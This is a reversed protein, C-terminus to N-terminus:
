ILHKLFARKNQLLCVPYRFNHPNLVPTMYMACTTAQIFKQIAQQPQVNKRPCLDNISTSGELLHQINTKM